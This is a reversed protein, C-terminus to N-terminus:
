EDERTDRMMKGTNADRTIYPLYGSMISFVGVRNM